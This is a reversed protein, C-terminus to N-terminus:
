QRCIEEGGRTGEREKPREGKEGYHATGGIGRKRDEMELKKKRLPGDSVRLKTSYVWLRVSM